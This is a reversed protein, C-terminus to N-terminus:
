LIHIIITHKMTKDTTLMMGDTCVSLSVPREDVDELSSNVAVLASIFALNVQAMWCSLRAESRTDAGILKLM